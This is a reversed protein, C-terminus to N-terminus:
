TQSTEPAKTPESEEKKAVAETEPKQESTTESAKVTDTVVHEAKEPQKGDKEPVEAKSPQEEAEPKAESPEAAALEAAADAVAAEPKPESDKVLAEEKTEVKEQWKYVFFKNLNIQCGCHTHTIM